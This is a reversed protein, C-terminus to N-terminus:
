NISETLWIPSNMLIYGQGDMEMHHGERDGDVGALEGTM